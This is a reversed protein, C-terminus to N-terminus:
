KVLFLYNDEANEEENEPYDWDTFQVELKFGEATHEYIALVVGLEHENIIYKQTAFNGGMSVLECDLARGARYCETLSIKQLEDEKVPTSSFKYVKGTEENKVSMNQWM